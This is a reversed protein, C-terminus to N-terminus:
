FLSICGRIEGNKEETLLISGDPLYNKLNDLINQSNFILYRNTVQCSNILNSINIGEQFDLNILNIQNSIILYNDKISYALEFNLSEQAISFVNNEIEIWQWSEPQALLEVAFSGDPLLRQKETPVKQALIIRVLDKFNDLDESAPKNTVLVFDFGFVSKDNKNFIIIESPQKLLNVAKNLEFNYISKYNESTQNYFDLYDSELKSWNSFVDALSIGSIYFGFDVPLNNLLSKYNSAGSSSVGSINIQWNDKKQNLSLYIDDNVVQTFIKNTLGQNQNLYNKLNNSSVYVRGLGSKIKDKNIQTALSFTKSSNVSSIKDVLMQHNSVVLIDKGIKLSPIQNLVEDTIDKKLKFLFVSQLINNEDPLLIVAAQTSSELLTNKFNVDVLIDNEIKNFFDAFPFEKLKINQWPFISEKIQAYVISDIPALKILHDTNKNKLWLFGLLSLFLLLVILFIGGWFVWPMFNRKASTDGSPLVEPNKTPFSEEM